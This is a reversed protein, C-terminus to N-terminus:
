RQQWREVLDAVRIRQIHRGRYCSHRHSSRRGEPHSQGIVCLTLEPCRLSGAACAARPDGLRVDDAAGAENALDEEGGYAYGSAAVCM